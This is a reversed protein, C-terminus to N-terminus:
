MRRIIEAMDDHGQLSLHAIITTRESQQARALYKVLVGRIHEKFAHAQQSILPHANDGIYLIKALALDALEDPSHGRNQTTIVKFNEGLGAELLNSM